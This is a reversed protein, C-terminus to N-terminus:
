PRKHRVNDGTGFYVNAITVQRDQDKAILHVHLSGSGAMGHVLTFEGQGKKVAMHQLDFDPESDGWKDTTRHLYVTGEDQFPMAYKGHVLYQGGVEIKPRTGRVELIELRGGQSFETYGKEIPVRYRFRAALAEVAANGPRPPLSAEKRARDLDTLAQQLRSRDAEAQANTMFGLKAM